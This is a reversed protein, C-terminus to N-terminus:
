FRYGVALATITDIGPFGGIGEFESSKDNKFYNVSLTMRKYELGVGIMYGLGYKREKFLYHGYESDPGPYISKDAFHSGPYLGLANLEFTQRAYSIGAELYGLTGRSVHSFLIGQLSGDTQYYDPSKCTRSNCEGAFYKDEEVTALAATTYKGLSFYSARWNGSEYGIRFYEGDLDFKHPYQDQWWIGNPPKQFHSSGVEVFPGAKAQFVCSGLILFLAIGLYDFKTLRYM